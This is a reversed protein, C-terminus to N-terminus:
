QSWGVNLYRAAPPVRGSRRLPGAGLRQADARAEEALQNLRRRTDAVGYLGATPPKKRRADKGPTKGLSEASGEVDLLDDAIQFLLGFAAASSSSCSTKTRPPAPPSTSACAPWWSHAPRAVASDISVQEPDAPWVRESELDEVQGGIMGVTGIAEGGTARCPPPHRRRARLARRRALHPRPSCTAQDLIATAEDYQRHVTPRGRRLDDDDLAPLDDHVLSYTHIM